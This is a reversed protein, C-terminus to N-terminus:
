AYTAPMKCVPGDRQSQDKTNSKIKATCQIIEKVTKHFNLPFDFETLHKSHSSIYGLRAGDKRTATILLSLLVRLLLYSLSSPSHQLIPDALDCQSDLQQKGCSTEVDVTYWLFRKKKSMSCDCHTPHLARPQQKAETPYHAKSGAAM